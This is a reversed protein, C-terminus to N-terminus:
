DAKLLTTRKFGFPKDMKLNVLRRVLRDSFFFQTLSYPITGYM